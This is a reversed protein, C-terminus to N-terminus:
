VHRRREFPVREGRAFSEANGSLTDRTVRTRPDRRPSGKEEEEVRQSHAHTTTDYVRM